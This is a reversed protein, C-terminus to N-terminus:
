FSGFQRGRAAPDQRYFTKFLEYLEPHRYEMEEGTEFFHETVVAFFEGLSTAGYCDFFNTGHHCDTRLQQFQQPILQTWRRVLEADDIPPIADTSRGNLMDIQHAFEHLVVNHGFQTGQAGALVDDWALIVPGRYSTEGLRTSDSEVVLGGHQEVARAVYTSPYILVSLVHEFYFEPLGLVLLAVQSAIIVPMEETLKLGGCGEWHKEAVLVQITDRLTAQEAATLRQWIACNALLIQQWEPPFPRQQLRRRRRRKWWSFM